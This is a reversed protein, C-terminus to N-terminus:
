GKEKAPLEIEEWWYRKREKRKKRKLFIILFIIVALALVVGVALGLLTNWETLWKAAPRSDAVLQQAEEPVYEIRTGRVLLRHTNIGYPTCTILTCYDKGDVRALDSIEKPLVVKIQDVKYALTQDLVHLYFVDDKEVKVLDTFMRANALGSHGTLVCHSGTGGVPLSSGELHGVGQLLVDEATGHYIALMVDIKPIKIYGMVGGGGLDLVQTYNEAMAMGSGVLFPDKVPNGELSHNYDVAEEWARKLSAEDTEGVIADYNNVMTTANRSFLFDSAAPYAFLGIGVLIM